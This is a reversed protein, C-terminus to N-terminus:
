VTAIHKWTTQLVKHTKEEEGHEIYIMDLNYINHYEDTARVDRTCSWDGYVLELTTLRIGVSIGKEV